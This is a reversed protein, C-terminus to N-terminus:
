PKDWNIAIIRTRVGRVATIYINKNVRLYRATVVFEKNSEQFLHWEVFDKVKGATMYFGKACRTVFAKRYDRKEKDTPLQRYTAGVDVDMAKLEDWAIRDAIGQNGKLLGIFTSRCFGVDSYEECGALFLFAPIILIWFLRSKKM